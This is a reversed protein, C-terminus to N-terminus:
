FSSRHLRLKSATANEVWSLFHRSLLSSSTTPRAWTNGMNANITLTEMALRTALSSSSGIPIMEDSPLHQQGCRLVHPNWNGTSKLASKRHEQLRTILPRSTQGIYFQDCGQCPLAYVLSSNFEPPTKNKHQSLLSSLTPGSKFTSRINHKKFTRLFQIALQQPLWPLHVHLQLLKPPSPQVTSSRKCNKFSSIIPTDM